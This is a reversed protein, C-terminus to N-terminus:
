LRGEIEDRLAVFADRTSKDFLVGSKGDSAESRPGMLSAASAGTGFHIFGPLFGPEKFNIEVIRSFPIRAENASQFFTRKARVIVVKEGAEISGNLGEVKM